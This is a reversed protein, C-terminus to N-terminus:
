SVPLSTGDAALIEGDGECKCAFGYNICLVCLYFLLSNLLHRSTTQCCNQDTIAGGEMMMGHSCCLQGQLEM